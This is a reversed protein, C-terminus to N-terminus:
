ASGLRQRMKWISTIATVPVVGTALADVGLLANLLTSKGRKFQGLVALQFRGAALRHRAPSYPATASLYMLVGDGVLQVKRGLTKTLLMWGEIDDEAMGDELSIIPYQDVLELYLEGM